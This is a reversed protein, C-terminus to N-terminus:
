LENKDEMGERIARGTIIGVVVSSIIWVIFVIMIIDM